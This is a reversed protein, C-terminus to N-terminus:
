EEMSSVETVEQTAASYYAKMDIKFDAMAVGFMKLLATQHSNLMDGEKCVTYDTDLVVKGKVLKTPMGWKRVTAELSHPLAIDDEAALEGGRSYVVGAPITFTQTAPIGARAFDTKSYASFYELINKPEQSTFFLGVNGNLHPTLASLNPLHEDSAAQGLAKAMVKTKGFFIRSDAFETRVEKLYTNRMNEVSFVFIYQYNNAAERVNAFLKQSLEKGKKDTKSLHVVKARKSKPM